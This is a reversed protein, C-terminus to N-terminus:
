PMESETFVIRTRIDYKRSANMHSGYRRIYSRKVDTFWNRIHEAFVDIQRYAYAFYLGDSFLFCELLLYSLLPKFRM